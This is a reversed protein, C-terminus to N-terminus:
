KGGTTTDNGEHKVFEFNYAKQLILKFSTRAELTMNYAHQFFSTCFTIFKGYSNLYSTMKEYTKKQTAYSRNVTSIRGNLTNQANQVNKVNNKLNNIHQQFGAKVFTECDNVYTSIKSLDNEYKESRVKKEWVKFCEEPSKADGEIVPNEIGMDKLLTIFFDDKINFDGDVIENAKIQSEKFKNDDADSFNDFVTNVIDNIKQYKTRMVDVGKRLLATEYKYYKVTVSKISPNKAKAADLQKIFDKDASDLKGITEKFWTVFKNIAAVIQNIIAKLKEGLGSSAQKNKEEEKKKDDDNNNNNNDSNNTNSNQNNDNNNDSVKSKDEEDRQKDQESKASSTDVKVEELAVLFSSDCIAQLERWEVMMSEYAEKYLFPEINKSAHRLLRM